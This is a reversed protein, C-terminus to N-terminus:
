LVLDGSCTFLNRSSVRAFERVHKLFLVSQSTFLLFNAIGGLMFFLSSCVIYSVRKASLVSKSQTKNCM